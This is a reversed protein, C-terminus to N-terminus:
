MHRQDAHFQEEENNKEHANVFLADAKLEEDTADLYDVLQYGQPYYAKYDDTHRNSTLGMDFRLWIKSSSLCSVLGTSDEAMAFGIFDGGSTDSAIIFIKPNTSM